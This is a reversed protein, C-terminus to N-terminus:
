RAYKINWINNRKFAYLNELKYENEFLIYRNIKENKQISLIKDVSISIVPCITANKKILGAYVYDTSDSNNNFLYLEDYEYYNFRSTKVRITKKRM